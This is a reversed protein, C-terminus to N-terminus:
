AVQFDLDGPEIWRCTVKRGPKIPCDDFMSVEAPRARVPRPMGSMMFPYQAMMSIVEKAKKASDLEVLACKPVNKPEIYNPIFKVSEVNAFQDLASKLVSETIQPSLNDFFVTHRVKDEFAVYEREASSGM